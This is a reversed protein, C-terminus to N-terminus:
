KETASHLIVFFIKGDGTAPSQGAGRLASLPPSDLSERSSFLFKARRDGPTWESLSANFYYNLGYQYARPLRYVVVDDPSMSHGQIAWISAPRATIITDIGPLILRNAIYILIAVTCAGICVAHDLRHRISFGVNVACCVIAV